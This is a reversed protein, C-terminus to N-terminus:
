SNSEALRQYFILTHMIYTLLTLHKKDQMHANGKRRKPPITFLFVYAM